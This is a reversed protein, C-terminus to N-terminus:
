PTGGRQYGVWLRGGVPELVEDVVAELPEIRGTLVDRLGDHLRMNLGPATPELRRALWKGGGNWSEGATLALEASRRVLETAIFLREGQEASGALDDLLDTIAYRRDDIEEASAAPPGAATLKRAEAALHAGTGDKDLLLIGDSCMWLLPSRRKRVERDVYSHWTAETHVFMEVLWEGSRFSARYPAPSGRLIVVIDLDSMPTRRATVVSGGLFAAQADPHHEEVVARATAIADM